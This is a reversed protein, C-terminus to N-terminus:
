LRELYDIQDFKENNAVAVIIDDKAFRYDPQFQTNLTEKLHKRIGIINLDYKQRVDLEDLTVNVWKEPAWFEVIATEEDLNILDEISQRSIVDAIHYGSEEEPLIVRSVGLALLAQAFRQNKAKCIIHNVGLEQCNIVGLVAAELNEGTGIVIIDCNGFGAERMFDLDTFDGVSGITLCDELDNVHKEMRDCAIVDIGKTALRKVLASGFLGLGMVGIVRNAKSM